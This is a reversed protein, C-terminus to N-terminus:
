PDGGDGSFSFFLFLFFCIYTLSFISDVAWWPFVTKQDERPSRERRCALEWWPRETWDAGGLRSGGPRKESPPFGQTWRNRRNRDPHFNGWYQIPTTRNPGGM